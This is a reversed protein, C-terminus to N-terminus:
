YNPALIKYGDIEGVFDQKTAGQQALSWLKEDNFIYLADEDFNGNVVESLHEKNAKQAAYHNYRSFYGSNIKLNNTAALYAVPGYKEPDGSVPLLIIKQYKIVAKDWFDLRELTFLNKNEYHSIMKIKTQRLANSMDAFQLIFLVILALAEKSIGLFNKKNEYLKIIGYIAGLLILYYTPWFMRGSSRIIGLFAAFTDSIEINILARSGLSIHHSLAILTLLFAALILPYFKKNCVKENFYTLRKNTFLEALFLIILMLIPGLGLFAFGEYEFGGQPQNPIIKSWVGDSDIISLLNMKADGFLAASANQVGVVFYGYQWMILLSCIIAPIMRRLAAIIRAVIKTEAILMRQAIDASYVLFIMVFIYFHIGLSVLFLLLWLAQSFDKRFYLLLAALILFHAGLSFHYCYFIRFLLIPSFIFFLSGFFQTAFNPTIRKLLLMAFVAQLVFCLLIWWGFYQFNQPLFKAFIKFFIAVLPISDTYVISGAIEYGYDPNLGIINQWFDGNKFFLWGLLFQSPDKESIWQYYRADLIKGATLYFFLALAAAISPLFTAVNNITKKM